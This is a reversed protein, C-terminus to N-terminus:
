PINQNLDAPLMAVLSRAHETYHTIHRPHCAMVSTYLM